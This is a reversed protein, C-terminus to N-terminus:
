PVPFFNWPAMEPDSLILFRVGCIWDRIQDTSDRYYWLTSNHSKLCGACYREIGPRTTIQTM